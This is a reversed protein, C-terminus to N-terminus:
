SFESPNVHGVNRRIDAAFSSQRQKEELAKGIWHGWGGGTEGRRRGGPLEQGGSAKWFCAAAEAAQANTEAPPEGRALDWMEIVVLACYLKARSNTNAPMAQATELLRAPGGGGSAGSRQEIALEVASPRDLHDYRVVSLELVDLARDIEAYEQRGAACLHWLYGSRGDKRDKTMDKLATVHRRWNNLWDRLPAATPAAEETLRITGMKEVIPELGDVFSNPPSRDLVIATGKTIEGLNIKFSLESRKPSPARNPM